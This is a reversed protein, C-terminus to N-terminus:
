ELELGCNPCKGDHEDFGANCSSCAFKMEDWSKKNEKTETEEAEIELTKKGELEDGESSPVSKLSVNKGINSPESSPTQTPEPSKAQKPNLDEVKTKVPENSTQQTEDVKVQEGRNQSTPTKSPFNDNNKSGHQEGCCRFNKSYTRKTEGCKPCKVIM